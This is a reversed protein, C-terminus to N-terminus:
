VYLAIKEYINKITVKSLIPGALQLLICLCHLQIENEENSLNTICSLM